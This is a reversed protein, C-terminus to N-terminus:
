KKVTSRVCRIYREYTKYNIYKYSRKFNMMWAFGESSDHESSSWYYGSGGINKFRHKTTKITGLLENIDPLRWNHYGELQLEKCFLVAGQWDKKILANDQWMLGTKKDILVDSAFSLSLSVLVVIIIKM